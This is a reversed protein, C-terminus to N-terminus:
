RSSSAARSWREMAMPRWCAAHVFDESWERCIGLTLNSPMPAKDFADALVPVLMDPVDSGIYFRSENGTTAIVIGCVGDLRRREDMSMEVAVEFLEIDRLLQQGM